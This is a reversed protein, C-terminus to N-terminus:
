AESRPTQTRIIYELILYQNSHISAKEVHISLLITAFHRLPPLLIDPSEELTVHSFALARHKNPRYIRVM